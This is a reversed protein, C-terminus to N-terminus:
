GTRAPHPPRTSFAGATLRVVFFGWNADSYWIENRSPVFAPSSMAYDGTNSSTFANSPANFYAMEYPQAPNKLSFVRLGSMIFSCAVYPPDVRTPVACYHAAYGQFTSKAGYDNQQDGGRAETQDVALRLNSIVSPNYPDAVDIIRAAGVKATADYGGGAASGSGPNLTTNTYEDVEVLYPHGHVSFPVPIQPISVEGWGLRSMQKVNPSAKHQNVESVDLVTLGPLNV